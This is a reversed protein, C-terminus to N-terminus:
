SVVADVHPYLVQMSDADTGASVGALRQAQELAAAMTPAVIGYSQAQGAANKIAIVYFKTPM